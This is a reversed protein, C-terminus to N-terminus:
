FIHTRKYIKVCCRRYIHTNNANKVTPLVMDNAIRIMVCEHVAKKDLPYLWQEELVRLLEDYTTQDGSSISTSSVITALVALVIFRKM